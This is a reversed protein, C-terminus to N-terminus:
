RYSPAFPSLAKRIVFIARNKDRSPPFDGITRSFKMTKAIAANFKLNDMDKCYSKWFSLLQRQVYFDCDDSMSPVFNDVRSIFRQIGKIDANSWQIDKEIPSKFMMYVRVTDVGYKAITSEPNIGNLKSKSMKENAVVLSDKTTPDVPNAINITDPSFYQGTKPNKYTTGTVMGQSIVKKFPEKHSCVSIEQMFHSFFRAYVLHSTAHEIGGVYYAIPFAGQVKDKDFIKSQNNSDIYRYFYWSSDFFTDLTNTERVAKRDCKPCICDNSWEQVQQCFDTWKGKPQPFSVPLDSEKVPVAGCEKCHIVPIPTGWYRQRSVCWDHINEIWNQQIKIVAPSLGSSSLTQIMPKRYESVAIFWQKMRKKEIKVGSRWAIGNKDIQENALVTKEVPDYNVEKHAQYAVNNKMMQIFLWQTWRYYNPDNTAIEKDWDIDLQMVQLQRKMNAINTNTWEHPTQYHAIAANEAPLGFADWGIPHVVNDGKMKRYTAIADTISYNRLHGLHLNGSPYPFM